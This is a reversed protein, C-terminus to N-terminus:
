DLVYKELSVAVFSVGVFDVVEVETVIDVTWLLEESNTSTVVM